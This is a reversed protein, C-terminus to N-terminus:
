VVKNQFAMYLRRNSTKAIVSLGIHLDDQNENYSRKLEYTVDYSIQSGRKEFIHKLVRQYVFYFLFLDIVSLGNM